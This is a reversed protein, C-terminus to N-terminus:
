TAAEEDLTVLAVGGAVQQGERAEVRAVTGDRPSMMEYQMKMAELVVLTQGSRVAEGPQVLVKLVLGPMPSTLQGAPAGARRRSESAVELHHIHGDIWIWRENGSRAVVCRRQVGDQRLLYDGPGLEDWEFSRDGLVLRSGDLRSSVRLIEDGHRYAREM